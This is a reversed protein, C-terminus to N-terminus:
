RFMILEKLKETGSVTSVAPNDTGSQLSTSGPLTTVPSRHNNSIWWIVSQSAAQFKWNKHSIRLWFAFCNFIQVFISM